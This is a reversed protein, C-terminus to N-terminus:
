LLLCTQVGDREGFVKKADEVKAAFIGVCDLSDAFSVVGWRSLLGYSPKLGVIGCYSAPLRTSGGTDTGLASCDSSRSESCGASWERTVCGQRLRRQVGALVVVRAGLCAMKLRCLTLWQDMRRISM